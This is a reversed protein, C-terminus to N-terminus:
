NRWYHHDDDDGNSNKIGGFGEGHGCGDGAVLRLGVLSGVFGGCGVRVTERSGCGADNNGGNGYEHEITDTDLVIVMDITDPGTNNTNVDIKSDHTRESGCCYVIQTRWVPCLESSWLFMMGPHGVNPVCSVM